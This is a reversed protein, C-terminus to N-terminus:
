LAGDLVVPCHDSVLTYDPDMADPETPACSLRACYGLVQPASWEGGRTVIHDLLSPRYTATGPPRWYESCPLADTHLDFGFDDVIEEVFAPEEAPEGDLYGTSNMDGMLAVPIGLEREVDDAITLARRWKDRRAAFARPHAPLHVSLVAIRADGDVLVVLVGSMTRPMCRGDGDPDLAPYERSEVLEWRAADYVIGTSFWAGRNCEALVSKWRRTGLTSAHLLALDLVFGDRIEQVAIVDADIETIVEAVRLVGTDLAPFTEINFTAIRVPTRCSYATAAIVLVAALCLVHLSRTRMKM